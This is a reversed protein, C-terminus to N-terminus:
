RSGNVGLLGDVSVEEDVIMMMMMVEEEEEEVLAKLVAVEM